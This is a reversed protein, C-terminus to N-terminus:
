KELSTRTATLIKRLAERSRSQVTSRVFARLIGTLSRTRARNVSVLYFSPSAGGADLALTVTLAADLYHDAYVQTTVIAVTAPNAATTHVVQHSIRFVPRIGFDEKSWYLVEEANNPIPPAFERMFAFMDPAYGGVFGVEQVLGGLESAVSLPERKNAFVPLAQRGSRAYSAAYVALVDRWVAASRDRWAPDRWNVEDHFRAIDRESLRVRCDFPRCDRLDLNYEEFPARSLDAATPARSFRGVDLVITSRKLNAIDRYREALRDKPAAIRVAGAVAIERNDTDIVKAVAEGREVAAWEADSIRAIERLLERPTGPGRQGAYVTLMAAIALIVIPSMALM